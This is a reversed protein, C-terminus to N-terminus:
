RPPDPHGAGKMGVNVSPAELLGRYHGSWHRGIMRLVNLGYPIPDLSSSEEGYHTPIAVEHCPFGALHALLIMEADFNFNDQLSEFPLSELLSRSYLMYGSHFEALNTGFALNELSTLARNAFYRFGPMGGERAGGGLMRSGQVLDARGSLIPELLDLVREPAYQGDAHLVAFGRCGLRLGERLGTKQAGGYGRNVPHHLVQIRNKERALEEAIGATADPSGDDIVILIGGREFVADPIRAVTARLVGAARYAPMVICFEPSM